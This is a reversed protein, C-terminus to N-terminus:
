GYHPGDAPYFRVGLYAIGLDGLSGSWGNYVLQGNIVQGDRSWWEATLVARTDVGFFPRSWAAGLPANSGIEAGFSQLLGIHAVVLMGNISLTGVSYPWSCFSTPDDAPCIPGSSWFSFDPAGDRNLDISRAAYDPPIPFSPSM